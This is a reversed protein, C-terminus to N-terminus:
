ARTNIFALLLFTSTFLLLLVFYSICTENYKIM